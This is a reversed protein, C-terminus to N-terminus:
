SAKRMVKDWNKMFDEDDMELLAEPNLGKDVRGGSSGLSKSAQITKELQALKDSDTNQTVPAVPAAVKQYGRLKAIEYIRQAPNVGDQYAKGAIAMEDELLLRNAMGDDYGSAKYENLRSNVLHKYADQFDPAAKMFDQADQHYKGLFQQQKAVQAQYQAQQEAQAQQQKTYQELREIKIRAAELPDEEFTPEKMGPTQIEILKQMAEEIKRTRERYEQVEQQLEKRREREEHLAGYPVVKEKQESAEVVPQTPEVLPQEEAVAEEKVEEVVEATEPEMSSPELGEKGGSAFFKDMQEDSIDTPIEPQNNLVELNTDTM